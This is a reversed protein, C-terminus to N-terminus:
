AVRRYAKKRHWMFKKSPNEIAIFAQCVDSEVLGCNGATHVIARVAGMSTAIFVPSLKTHNVMHERWAMFKEADIAYDFGGCFALYARWCIGYNYVTKDKVTGSLITEDFM